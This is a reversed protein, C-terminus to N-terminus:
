REQRAHAFLQRHHEVRDMTQLEQEAVARAAARWRKRDSQSGRGVTEIASRFAEPDELPLIWGGGKAKVVQWPTRDSILVPCGSALAEFIAHGFNEGRSPLFFLDHSTLITGIQTHPVVGEYSVEIHSPLSAIIEQCGAWYADDTVVGYIRFRVPVDVHQLVTLAYDLNKMPAIRGVFVVALQEGTDSLEPDPAVNPMLSPLNRAEHVSIDQGMVRRIDNAEDTTSAHWQIQRHVGTGKLLSLYTRKKLSKLALAEGSFEGRPALVFACDGTLGMVWLWLPAVSFRPAFMSGTYIVDCPTHRLLRWWHWISRNGPSAYFVQIGNRDTWQDATIGDFTDTDQYDRDQTIVYFDYVDQLHETLNQVSRIPGGAKYAPDFYKTFIVVSPRDSTM